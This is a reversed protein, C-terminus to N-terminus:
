FDRSPPVRQTEPNTCKEPRLNRCADQLLLLSSTGRTRGGAEPWEEIPLNRRPRICPMRHSVGATSIPNTPILKFFYISQTPQNDPVLVYNMEYFRALHAPEVGSVSTIRAVDCRLNQRARCRSLETYASTVAHDADGRGGCRRAANNFLIAADRVRRGLIRGEQNIRQGGLAARLALLLAFGPFKM